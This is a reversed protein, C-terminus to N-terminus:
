TATFRWRGFPNFFFDDEEYGVCPEWRLRFRPSSADTRFTHGPAFTGVPCEALLYLAFSRFLNLASWDVPEVNGSRGLVSEDVILDPQGLLHLGCTYLTSEDRIPCQVYARFLALWGDLDSTWALSALEQWRARGHAIGSSECKVAIGGVDILQAGLRLLDRSRNPADDASFNGSLVYLVTTHEAIRAQDDDSLSSDSRPVAAQFASAMREDRARVEHKVGAAALLPACRAALDDGGPICLVINPRYGRGTVTVRVRQWDVWCNEPNVDRFGREIALRGADDADMMICAGADRIEDVETESLARGAKTEAHGLLARLPPVFVPVLPSGASM